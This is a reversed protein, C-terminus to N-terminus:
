KKVRGAGDKIGLSKSCGQEEDQVPNQDFSGELLDVQGQGGCLRHWNQGQDSEDYWCYLFEEM